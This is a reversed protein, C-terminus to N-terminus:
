AEQRSQRKWYVYVNLWGGSTLVHNEFPNKSNKGLTMQSTEKNDRLVAPHM